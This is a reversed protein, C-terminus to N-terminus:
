NEDPRLDFRSQLEQLLPNTERMKLYKEKPTLPKKVKPAEKREQNRMVSFVLEREHFHARLHDVLGSEDKIANEALSSNAIATITKDELKLSVDSLLLKVADPQDTEDVYQQWASEVEELTLEPVDYRQASEDDEQVSALLADLGGNLKPM